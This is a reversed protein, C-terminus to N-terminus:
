WEYTEIHKEAKRRVIIDTIETNVINTKVLIWDDFYDWIKEYKDYFKMVSLLGNKNINKIIEDLQYGEKEMYKAFETDIEIYENLIYKLIKDEVRRLFDFEYGDGDLNQGILELPMKIRFPGPIIYYWKNDLDFFYGYDIFM